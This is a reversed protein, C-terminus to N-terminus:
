CLNNGQHSQPQLQFKQTFHLDLAAYSTTRFSMKATRFESVSIQAFFNSFLFSGSASMASMNFHILNEEDDIVIRGSSIMFSFSESCSMDAFGAM